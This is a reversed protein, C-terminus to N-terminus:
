VPNAAAWEPTYNQARVEELMMEPNAEDKVIRGFDV